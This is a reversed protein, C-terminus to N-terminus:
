QPWRWPFRWPHDGGRRRRPSPPRMVPLQPAPLPAESPLPTTPPPPPGPRMPDSRRQTRAREHHTDRHRLLLAGLQVGIICLQGRRLKGEVIREAETKRAILGRPRPCSNARDSGRNAKARMSQEAEKQAVENPTVNAEQARSSGRTPRRRQRIRRWPDILVRQERQM